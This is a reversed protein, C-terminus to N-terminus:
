WRLLRRGVSAGVGVPVLIGLLYWTGIFPAEMEPCHLCYVLAGVAGSFLGAAAGALRLQTPALGQVAWFTTVFVPVSLMTILTPCVMWTQGLLLSLREGPDANILIFTILVWIAIVPLSIGVPVLGLRAGPRSLRVMALFGAIALFGSFGVKMWFKPLALAPLLDPRLGLTVLMLLISAPLGWFIATSFRRKAEYPEVAGVGTALMTVLDDTRM